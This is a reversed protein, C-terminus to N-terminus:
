SDGEKVRMAGAKESGPVDVCGEVVVNGCHASELEIEDLSVAVDIEAAVPVRAALCAMAAVFVHRFLHPCIDEFSGTGRRQVSAFRSGHRRCVRPDMLLLEEAHGLEHARRTARLKGHRFM